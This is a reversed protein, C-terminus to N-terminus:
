PPMYVAPPLPPIETLTYLGRHGCLSASVGRYVYQNTEYSNVEQQADLLFFM